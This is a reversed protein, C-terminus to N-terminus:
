RTIDRDPITLIRPLLDPADILPLCSERINRGVVAARELCAFALFNDSVQIVTHRADIVVIFDSSFSLLSSIPVRHSLFYVKATGYSRMEVQGSILLIDLYKAVSNRNMAMKKSLDTVSVGKPNDKLIEKIASLIDTSVVGEREGRM